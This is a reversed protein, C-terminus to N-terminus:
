CWDRRTNYHYLCDTYSHCCHYTLSFDTVAFTSYIYKFQLLIMLPCQVVQQAVIYWLMFWVCLIIFIRSRLIRRDTVHLSNLVFTFTHSEYYFFSRIIHIQKTNCFIIINYRGTILTTSPRSPQHATLSSSSLAPITLAPITVDECCGKSCGRYVGIM